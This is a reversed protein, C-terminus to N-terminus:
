RPLSLEGSARVLELFEARYGGPDRESASRALREVDGLGFDGVQESRRLIMGWGAVAASFRFDDTTDRLALGHDRVPFETLKSSMGRPRKWRLRVTLLEGTHAAKTPQKDRQYRLPEDGPAPVPGGVPVVEYLATVSHGAGIEGADKRDDSFDRNALVRNEYGILRYGQVRLPNFEVQIKVDKAVTVLTGGGETVLVKRAEALSDVYHYNGNGSDALSEMRDDQLNGTGFGLVTLFVGSEREREILEVLEGESSVGVNFDGDTALIVRNIGEPDLNARATRYAVLIGRGGATSGGAQLRELAELIRPQDAGSTPELVVGVSGAYTVISVRDRPGLTQVLLAMGRKLLGLKDASDMSGSVDLLFVLNRPPLEDESLSPAQLGVRVLRHSPAWPAPGVETVVSLPTDADRPPPEYGYPFYNLLEEIRVADRPPLRGQGLFRRVNAYSATDVDVSFTSRPQDAVRFWANEDIPEYAERSPGDDAPPTPDAVYIGDVDALLDVESSTRAAPSPRNGSRWRTRTRAPAEELGAITDIEADATEFLGRIRGGTQVVLLAAGTGLLLTLVAAVMLWRSPRRPRQRRPADPSPAPQPEVSRLTRAVLEPPPEQAALGPLLADVDRLHELLADEDIHRHEGTM